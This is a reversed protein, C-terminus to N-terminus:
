NESMYQKFYIIITKDSAIGNLDMSMGLCTSSKLGRTNAMGKSIDGMLSKQPIGHYLIIFM